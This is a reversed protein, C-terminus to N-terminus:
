SGTLLLYMIVGTAWMDAAPTSTAGKSFLEPPWYAITGSVEEQEEEHSMTSVISTKNAGYNELLKMIAASNKIANKADDIPQNGWRDEVNVDAGAKCLLKM